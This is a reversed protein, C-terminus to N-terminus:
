NIQMYHKGTSRTFQWIGAAGFKSYAEYNFSSEVHPLYALDEPLGSERFIRRIEDIYAGSRILGARFRDKQGTQCRIRRIALKYDAPRPNPGFLEAIQKEIPSEPAQNKALKALITKYKKKANKIRRRNIKRGGARYPDELKISGYIIGLNRSDHIVGQNSSYKTYIQTWFSVNPQICEFVPFSKSEAQIDSSFAVLIVVLVFIYKAFISIKIKM